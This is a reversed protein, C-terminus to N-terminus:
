RARYAGGPAKWIIGRLELMTLVSNLKSASLGTEAEIEGFTKSEARLPAVIAEEEPTLPPRKEEAHAASPRQAWRYHEPIDWPSIAPFAGQMLLENPSQSMSSYISGPIVFLDRGQEAACDATIRGGSKRSGEVLLVGVSLGSIIRNRAPFNGPLPQTGPPYESLIAGGSDLIRARLAEHEPPYIVDVGCGMVAM